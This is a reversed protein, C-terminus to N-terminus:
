DEIGIPLGLAKRLENACFRDGSESALELDECEEDSLLYKMALRIKRMTTRSRELNVRCRDRREADYAAIDMEGM